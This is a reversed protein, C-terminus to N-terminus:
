KGLGIEKMFEQNDWLGLGLTFIVTPITRSNAAM